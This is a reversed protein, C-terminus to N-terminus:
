LDTVFHFIVVDFRSSRCYKGSGGKMGTAEAVAQRIASANFSNPASVAPPPRKKDSLLVMMQPSCLALISKPCSPSLVLSQIIDYYVSAQAAFRSLEETLGALSISPLMNVYQRQQIEKVLLRIVNVLTWNLLPGTFYSIGNILTDKEM